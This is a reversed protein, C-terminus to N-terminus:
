DYAQTHVTSETIGWRCVIQGGERRLQAHVLMFATSLDVLFRDHNVLAVLQFLGLTM